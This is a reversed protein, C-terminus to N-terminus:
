VNAIAIAINAASFFLNGWALIKTGTKLEM